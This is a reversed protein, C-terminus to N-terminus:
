VTIATRQIEQNGDHTVELSKASLISINQPFEGQIQHKLPIHIENVLKNLNKFSCYKLEDPLSLYTITRDLPLERIYKKLDTDSIIRGRRIESDIDRDGRKQWGGDWNDYTYTEIVINETSNYNIIHFANRILGGARDDKRVSLSGSCIYTVAKKWDDGEFVTEAAPHHCHGHIVLDIGLEGFCSRLQPGEELVSLDRVPVPYKHPYPHHHLLVIKPKASKPNKRNYTEANTKFWNLQAISIKGGSNDATCLYGSNLVFVICDTREIIGVMPISSHKLSFNNSLDCIIQHSALDTTRTDMYHRNTYEKDPTSNGKMKGLDSIKRDVDHNGLCAVWNKRNIGAEYEFKLLKEYCYKYELPSATSTLDGSIFLYDPQENKLVEIVGGFFPASGAVKSDAAKKSPVVLDDTTSQSGFHIDSILAIKM